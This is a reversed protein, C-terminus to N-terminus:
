GLKLTIDGLRGIMYFHVFVNGESELKGSVEFNVNMRYSRITRQSLLCEMIRFKEIQM